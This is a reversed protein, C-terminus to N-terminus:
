MPQSDRIDTSKICTYCPTVYLHWLCQKCLICLINSICTCHLIFPIACAYQRGCLGGLSQNENGQKTCPRPVQHCRQSRKADGRIRRSVQHCRQSRKADGRIRRSVQHCRQSHKADGRIRRPVQHCRQSCNADGRIRRSVQHCCQASTFTKYRRFYM